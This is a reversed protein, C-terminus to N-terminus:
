KKDENAKPIEFSMKGDHKIRLFSGPGDEIGIEAQNGHGDQLSMGPGGDAAAGFDGAEEGVTDVSLQADGGATTIYGGRENGEADLILIGSGIISRKFRKGLVMPAPLPAGIYVRDIGNEDQVILGRVRLISDSSVSEAHAVGVRPWAVFAVTAFWLCLLFFLLRTQRVQRKNLTDIEEQFRRDMDQEAM